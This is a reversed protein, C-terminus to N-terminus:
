MVKQDVWILDAVPYGRRAAEGVIQQRIDEDIQPTRSLIWLYKDSSGGVLAYTYDPALMLIRYDSYFPGFFSVRLVGASDTKKARGVSTKWSGDKKGRNTVKITGDEQLVYNATCQTLGREFRHDFRAVEYWRGLYRELDVERIPTNDVTTHSRCSLLITTATTLLIAIILMGCGCGHKQREVYFQAKTAGCQPCRQPPEEGEHTYGCVKCIWKEM